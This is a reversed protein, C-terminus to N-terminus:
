WRPCRDEGLLGAIAERTLDDETPGLGGTTFIIDSRSIAEQLTEVIRALDDAVVSVQQLELGLLPLHSALYGSNSDSVEGLLLETGISIIEAKM